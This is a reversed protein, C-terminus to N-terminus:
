DFDGDLEDLAPLQVKHFSGTNVRFGSDSSSPPIIIRELNRPVYDFETPQNQKTNM